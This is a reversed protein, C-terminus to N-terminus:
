THAEGPEAVALVDHGVAQVEAPQTEHLSNEFGPPQYHKDGGLRKWERYLLLLFTISFCGFFLAWIHIFRYSYYKGYVADPFFRQVVDLAKGVLVSGFISIGAQFMALCSCFQGFRERPLIRMYMPMTVAYTLVGLPLTLLSLAFVIAYNIQPTFAKFLWFLSLPALAFTVLSLGVMMRLPHYRDALAGAPYTLATSLAGCVAGIRGIQGLSLGLSQNFFVGFLMVSYGGLSGCLGWLFFYWYFRHGLCEKVYTQASALFGRRGGVNEPPPPYAGEKVKWCMLLFAVGYLLAAGIFIPRMHTLAHKFVFWNYLAGALSGVLRTLGLFRAMFAQPVVDNFLYWFVTGIFMNFVQFLVMCVAITLLITTMASLRALPWIDLGHLWGGIEPAFALLVLALCVFPTAVALFPIRRGWRSRSRDSSFSITPNLMVNLSMPITTMILAMNTNTAGLAKLKLPLISPIVTEMLTMCFDGWLVWFFLTFLGAKTYQLTGVRYRAAVDPALPSPQTAAARNM